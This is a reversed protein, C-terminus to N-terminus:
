EIRNGLLTGLARTTISTLFKNIFLPLQSRLNWVQGFSLLQRIGAKVYLNVKPNSAEIEMEKTSRKSVNAQFLKVCMIAGIKSARIMLTILGEIVILIEFVTLWLSDTKILFIKIIHRRRGGGLYTHNGLM